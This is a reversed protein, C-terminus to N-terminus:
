ARRVTAASSVTASGSDRRSPTRSETTRFARSLRSRPATAQVALMTCSKSQRNGDVLVTCAGCVGTECGFTTGTIVSAERLFQVLLVRPEVEREQLTGNVRIKVPSRM